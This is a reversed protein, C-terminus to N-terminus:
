GSSTRSDYAIYASVHCAFLNERKTEGGILSRYSLLSLGISKLLSLFLLLSRRLM